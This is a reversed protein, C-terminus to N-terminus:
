KKAVSNRMILEVPLEYLKGEPLAKRLVASIVTETALRGMEPFNQRTTTLPVMAMDSGHLNGYGVISLEEPISIGMDYALQYLKYAHGDSLCFIGDPRHSPESLMKRLPEEPSHLDFSDSKLIRPECCPIFHRLAECYANERLRIYDFDGSHSICVVNRSGAEFLCRIAEWTGQREASVFSPCDGITARCNVAAVPIARSRLEVALEEFERFDAGYFMVGSVRQETLMRLIQAANGKLSYVKVSFDSSTATQCVSNFVSFFYSTPPASSTVLAIIKSYGTRVSRALANPEYRLLKAIEFVKQRTHESIKVANNRNLVYSVTATSVGSAKAIDKLTSM